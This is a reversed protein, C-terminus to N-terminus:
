GKLPPTGLPRCEFQTAVLRQTSQAIALTGPPAFEQIRAALNPTKGTVAIQMATGRGIMDGIVAPGTAIGIRIQIKAAAKASIQDASALVALGARVAREAEGEHTSPYGFYALIGDGLYQAVHGDRSEIERAAVAQYALVVDRLDEPDLRQSLATSDVMDCFLVTVQRREAGRTASGTPPQSVSLPAGCDACFGKGPM